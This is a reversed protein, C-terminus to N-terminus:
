RHGLIAIRRLEDALVRMARCDDENYELIRNWIDINGTEVWQHFWQVSAAGSPDTDRWQFGLYKALAKISLSTTPWIMKSRVIDNYLDIFRPQQFLASVDDESAVDPYRKALRKWTTREYPSYSYVLADSHEHVFLWAGAFSVKELEPTAEDATLAVFEETRNNGNKRIVFGHLYCLDRFPDTEVDFFLEVTATPLDVPETFYPKADEQKQLVARAHYTRLTKAGIGPITTKGGQILSDLDAQALGHVTRLELPFKDRRSRGLESILTLDDSGNILRRCHSRWHCLKCASILAPTTEIGGNSIATVTELADEYEEWMTQPTRPGRAQDFDYAVEQGHIDWIFADRVTSWERSQLIDSYLSLQLAYHKKPKGTVDESDGELGAGSKIDGPIYGNDTRRLLDPEGLLGSHSIRGGYILDEGNLIARTTAGEREIRPIDRLNLFPIGLKEITELEFANGREWLLEVFPSIEDRELDNGFLDLSVRHPCTSFSYLMSATIMDQM